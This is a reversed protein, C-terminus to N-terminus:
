ELPPATGFLTKYEKEWHRYPTDNDYRWQAVVQEIKSMNIHAADLMLKMLELSSLQHVGYTETLEIMDQDDTVVPIQLVAATAVIKTDIYSPGKGRVSLFEDKVYEWMYEFDNEIQEKEKKSISLSRKRNQAYKQEGAWHFKSKLRSSRRYESNLEAHMYITHKENGFPTCLLPHINQALRLYSNTDILIKSQGM